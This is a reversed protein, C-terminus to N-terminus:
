KKYLELNSKKIYERITNITKQTKEITKEDEKNESIKVDEKYRNMIAFPNESNKLVGLLCKHINATQIGKKNKFYIQIGKDNTESLNAALINKDKNDYESFLLIETNKNKKNIIKVFEYIIVGHEYKNLTPEQIISYNVDFFNTIPLIGMNEINETSYTETSPIQLKKELESFTIKEAM